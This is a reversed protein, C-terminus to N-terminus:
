KLVMRLRLTDARVMMMELTQIMTDKVPALKVGGWMILKVLVQIGIGTAAIIM